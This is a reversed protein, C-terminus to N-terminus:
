RNNFFARIADDADIMARCARRMDRVGDVFMNPEAWLVIVFMLPHLALFLGIAIRQSLRHRGSAVSLSTRTESAKM